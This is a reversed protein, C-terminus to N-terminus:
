TAEKDLMERIPRLEESAWAESTYCPWPDKANAAHLVRLAHGFVEFTYLANARSDVYLMLKGCARTTANRFARTGPLLLEPM